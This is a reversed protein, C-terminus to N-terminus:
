HSRHNTVYKVLKTKINQIHLTLDKGRIKWVSEYKQIYM